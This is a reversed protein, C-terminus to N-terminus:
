RVSAPFFSRRTRDTPLNKSDTSMFPVRTRRNEFDSSYRQAFGLVTVLKVLSNASSVRLKLRIFGHTMDVQDRTLGLLEGKRMGTHIATLVIPTLAEECAKLLRDAEEPGSLYRLRGDLERYKKIATLEERLAKRM